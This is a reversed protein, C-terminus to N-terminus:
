KSSATQQKKWDRAKKMVFETTKEFFEDLKKVGAFDYYVKTTDLTNFDVNIQIQTNATKPSPKLLAM